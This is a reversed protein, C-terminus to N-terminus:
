IKSKAYKSKDRNQKLRKDTSKIFDKGRFGKNADTGSSTPSLTGTSMNKPGAFRMGRWKKGNVAMFKDCVECLISNFKLTSEFECQEGREDPKLELPCYGIHNWPKRTFYAMLPQDKDNHRVM